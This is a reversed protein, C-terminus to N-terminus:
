GKSGTSSATAIMELCVGMRGSSSLLVNSPVLPSPCRCTPHPRIDQQTHDHTNVRQQRHHQVHLHKPVFRQELHGHLMEMAVM